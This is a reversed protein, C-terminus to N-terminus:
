GKINRLYERYNINGNKDEGFESLIQNVEEETMKPKFVKMQHRLVKSDVIGTREPDLMEFAEELETLNNNSENFKKNCVSKFEELNIKEKGTKEKIELFDQIERETVVLGLCRMANKCEKINLTHKKAPLFYNFFEEYLIEPSEGNEEINEEKENKITNNDQSITSGGYLNKKNNGKSNNTNSRSSNKNNNNKYKKSSINNSNNDQEEEENENINNQNNNNKRINNNNDNIYNKNSYNNNPNNNNNNENYNNEEEGQYNEEENEEENQEEPEGYEIDMDNSEYESM